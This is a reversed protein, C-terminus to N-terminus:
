SAGGKKGGHVVCPLPRHCTESTCELLTNWYPAVKEQCGMGPHWYQSRLRGLRPFVFHDLWWAVAFGLLVSLVYSLITM